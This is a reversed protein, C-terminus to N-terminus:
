IGAPHDQTLQKIKLETMLLISILTTGVVECQQLSKICLCLYLYLRACLLYEM